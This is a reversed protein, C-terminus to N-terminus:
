QGVACDDTKRLVASISRLVANREANGLDHVSQVSGDSISARRTKSTDASNQNAHTSYYM